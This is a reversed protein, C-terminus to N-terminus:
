SCRRHRPDVPDLGSQQYITAYAIESPVVVLVVYGHGGDLNPTSTPSTCRPMDSSSPEATADGLGAAEVSGSSHRTNTRRQRASGRVYQRRCDIPQALNVDFTRM